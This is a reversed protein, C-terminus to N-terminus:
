TRRLKPNIFANVIDSLINFVCYFLAILLVYTQIIPVDRSFVAEVCLRGLGPWAFVNEIVVTGAIMAPIAMSFATLMTHMSNRLIHRIVKKERVGCSRFFSVYNENMNELMSNRIMRFFLGCYGISMVVTPLIFSRLSAAGSTPLWELKVAFLWAFITGILYAPMSSLVFMIGRTARDFWRGEWIACLTGLLVSFIFTMVTTTGALQLTYSFATRITQSVDNNTVFSKGFDLRLADALWDLYRLFFPQNFGYAENVQDILEQTIRPVGQAELVIVAPDETSANILVFALFSVIFFTPILFLLRRVIYERM